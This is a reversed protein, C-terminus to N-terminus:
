KKKSIIQYKFYEDMDDIEGTRVYGYKILSMLQYMCEESSIELVKSLEPVTKDGDALAKLISKKMKTFYKLQDMVQKEVPKKEKLFKATKGKEVDM